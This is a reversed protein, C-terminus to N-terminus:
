VKDNYAEWEMIIDKEFDHPLDQISPGLVNNRSIQPGLNFSYLSWYALFCVGSNSYVKYWGSKPPSCDKLRFRM